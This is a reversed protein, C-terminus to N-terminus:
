RLVVATVAIGLVILLTIVMKFNKKVAERFSLIEEKKSIPKYGLKNAVIDLKEVMAALAETKMEKLKEDKAGPFYQKIRGIYEDRKRELEKQREEEEKMAKLAEIVLKTIDEKTIEEGM